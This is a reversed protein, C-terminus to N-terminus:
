DIDRRVKAVSFDETEPGEASTAFSVRQSFRPDSFTRRM